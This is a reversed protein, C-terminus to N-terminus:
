SPVGEESPVGEAETPPPSPESAFLNPGFGVGDFRPLELVDRLEPADALSRAETLRSEAPETLALHGAVLVLCLAGWAVRLSRSEFLRDWLSDAQPELAAQRAADLVRERLDAPLASPRLGDFPDQGNDTM